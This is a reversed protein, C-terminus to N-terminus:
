LQKPLSTARCSDGGCSFHNREALPGDIDIDFLRQLHVAPGAAKHMYGNQMHLSEHCQSSYKLRTGQSSIGFAVKPVTLVKYKSCPWSLM